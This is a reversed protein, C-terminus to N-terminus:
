ARVEECRLVIRDRQRPDDIRQRIDLLREKWRVRMGVRVEDRPRITLRFRGMASLAMGEAEAGVGEAEVFALCRSVTEFGAEQLGTATRLAVPREIIIREKLTGAFESM